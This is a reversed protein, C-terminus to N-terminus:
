ESLTPGYEEFGKADAGYIKFNKAFMNGLEKYQKDYDDKNAWTNRPDLIKSDVGPLSDPVDFKFVGDKRFSTNNISGDYIADLCARTTKISMREGTGYRGGSWGSNVLYCPVNFQELKEKFLEAYKM